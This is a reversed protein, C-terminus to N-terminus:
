WWCEVAGGGEDAPLMGREEEPSEKFMLEKDTADELGPETGDVAPASEGTVGRLGVFIVGWCPPKEWCAICCWVNRKAGGSRTCYSWCGCAWGGYSGTPMRRGGPLLREEDEDSFDTGRLRLRVVVLMGRLTETSSSMLKSLASSWVGPEKSSDSIPYPMSLLGTSPLGLLPSTVSSNRMMSLWKPGGPDVPVCGPEANLTNPFVDPVLL